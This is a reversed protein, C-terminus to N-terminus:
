APVALVALAPDIDAIVGHAAENLVKLTWDVIMQRKDALGTKALPEVRYGHLFSHRVFEPDYIYVNANDPVTSEVQQLRNPMMALTVGFDTIFLNVSGLASAATKSQRVDDALTAIQASTTFM